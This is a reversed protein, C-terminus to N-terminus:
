KASTRQQMWIIDQNNAQTVRSVNGNVVKTRGDKWKHIESHGDGFAFGCGFNHYTGPWDIMEVVNMDVAFGADNISNEDEDLLIWLMAPSPAVMDSMRGYTRYPHGATHSHSGDLWPGDVAAVPATPKTGVAQNMSFSRVREYKTAGITTTSRDAPCRYLSAVPGTYPALKAWQPDTLYAKNTADQPNTMTGRVWNITATGDDPNPPLWDKYDGAYMHFAIILQKGNNMCYIAQGKQKAKALAPLLLGALIAIIAIVVLLEILTFAGVKRNSCNKPNM